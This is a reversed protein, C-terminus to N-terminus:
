PLERLNAIFVRVSICSNLYVGLNVLTLSRECYIRWTARQLVYPTCWFTATWYTTHPPAEAAMGGHLQWIRAGDGLSQWTKLNEIPLASAGVPGVWMFGM